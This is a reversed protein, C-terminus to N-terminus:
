DDKETGRPEADPQEELDIKKSGSKRSESKKSGSKADSKKAVAKVQSKKSEAKAAVEERPGGSVLQALLIAGWIGLPFMPWFFLPGGSAISTITWITVLVVATGAWGRWQDGQERWYASSAEAPVAGAPAAPLDATMRELEGYTRAAYTQQLREDYDTLTLRGEDVAVQLRHAVANRDADSARLESRELEGAM